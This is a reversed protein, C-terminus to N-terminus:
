TIEITYLRHNPINKDYFDGSSHAIVFCAQLSLLTTKEKEIIYVVSKKLTNLVISRFFRFVSKRFYLSPYSCACFPHLNCGSETNHASAVDELCAIYGPM